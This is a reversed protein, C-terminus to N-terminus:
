RSADHSRQGVAGPAGDTAAGERQSPESRRMGRGRRGQGESRPGQVEHELSDLGAQAEEAQESKPHEKLLLKYKEKAAAADDLDDQEIQGEALLAQM